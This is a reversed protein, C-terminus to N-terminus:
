VTKDIQFIPLEILFINSIGVNRFACRTMQEHSLDM